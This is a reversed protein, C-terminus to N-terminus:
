RIEMTLTEGAQLEVARDATIRLETGNVSTKVAVPRAGIKVNVKGAVVAAPVEFVLERLKLRGYKLEIRGTQVGDGRQQRFVGWGEAASFFSAHDEPKWVPKFGLSDRPGDYQFGQLALLVSWSSMARGYFDGCEDEGVPSGCGFVTSNNEMHVEGDARLRGDYRDHIAKVIDLGEQVLGYQIMAAAASYEFGSMVEDYYLITNGPVAGPHVFMQWGTDGKGLFDRFHAPYSGQVDAFRNKEYIKKLAAKTRALPYIQGLGLQNAWWQGLLMDISVADAMVMTDPLNETKEKYYGLKEDWLEADQKVRAVDHLATYRKAAKQDRMIAAMRASAELAAIYLSGIWPSTGSVDCDLTNHYSGSLMGDHDKDYTAIAYDMAQRTKEWAGKLFTNDPSLLHERYIGLISGFHGDMANRDEGDRSPLLGEPTMSRLDQTRLLRGLEPFLRAHGQAYHYVHKCNGYWQENNSTSEWLGFYGGKTWFATPSKLVAINAAIRDLVYGPLNSSYLSAQYLRTKGDLDDFNAAVFQDVAMADSWWNEYQCGGEPFRWNPIDDRGFTGEPIHWSLVFTVTRQEGPELEFDKAVAGDVTVGTARSRDGPTDSFVIYDVGINGWGGTSDDVIRLQATQGEFPQVSISKCELKNSNNGALSAVVKGDVLLQLATKAPDSGGSILASIYRREIKFPKSTLTGTHADGEEVNEGHRTNHSNVLRKGHAGVKGQYGPMRAAEVPGDGFATGTATWGDYKESEFDEFVVSSSTSTTEQAPSAAEAAGSIKGDEAFDAHLSALEKWSASSTMGSEYASLVMSGAAGTMQLVTRGDKSVIRNTNSGYGAHSRNDPGAVPDYGNFGVANQQAALLSVKVASDRTNKVTYRFVASPIASSKLDMPILFSYAELSVSVPLKDDAFDYWGLPFACRFTLGQMPEFPGVPLTQLARVVTADAQQTRIAFFSNPVFGSGDREKFNNFIHWWKRQAHGDLRIVSGGLGGVPFDIATLNRGEFTRLTGPQDNSKSSWAGDLVLRDSKEKIRYSQARERLDGNPQHLVLLLDGSFDRLIMAHGGDEGQGGFLPQEVQRWPGAITGSESIAQGVGYGHGKVFSSWIMVLTGNKMRYLFPGDTVFNGPSYERVWPAQSSHFLTVPEGTRASWDNKMKVALYAGDNIQDWAHSYVMWHTGDADIWPTADLCRQEPPTNAQEGLVVFPGEPSGARLIQSGMGAARGKFTAFMYYAGDLKHVEPAWIAPKGWFGDKPREFVVKPESWNVLDRSRYVEVGFDGDDQNRRNGGQAYLYYTRTEGDALIFPDRVRIDSLRLPFQGAAPTGDAAVSHPPAHFESELEDVAVVYGCHLCVAVALWVRKLM